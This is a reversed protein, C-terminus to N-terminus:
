RPVNKKGKRNFHPERVELLLSIVNLHGGDAAFHLGTEGDEDAFHPEVGEGLLKLVMEADGESAFHCLDKRSGKGGEDSLVTCISPSPPTLSPSICDCYCRYESLTSVSPAMFGGGDGGGSSAGEEDSDDFLDDDDEEGDGKSASPAQQGGGGGRGNGYADEGAAEARWNPSFGDVLACYGKRADACTMEGLKSWADWKAKGVFDLM